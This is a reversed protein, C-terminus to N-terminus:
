KRLLKFGGAPLASVLEEQGYEGKTELEIKLIFDEKKISGPVIILKNKSNVMSSPVARVVEEQKTLSLSLPIAMREIISRVGWTGPKMLKDKHISSSKFVDISAKKAGLKWAQSFSGTFIACEEIDSKKVKKEETLIVSFPSGPLTTHMVILEKKSNKIRSLLEDNQLANKGSVVLNDQSTFFWRYKQYDEFLHKM